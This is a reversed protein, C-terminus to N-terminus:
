QPGVYARMNVPLAFTFRGPQYNKPRASVTVLYTGGSSLNQINWRVDYVNPSTGNCVVYDMQYGAPPSSESFDIGKGKLRAGGTDTNIDWPSADGHTGCDSIAPPGGRALVATIQEIVAQTLMTATSDVRSRGNNGIATAFLAMVALLGFMLVAGAIMLEIVTMGQQSKRLIPQRM